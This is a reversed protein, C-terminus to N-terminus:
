ILDHVGVCFATIATFITVMRGQQFSQRAQENAIEGHKLSEKAQNNAIQRQALSLTMEVNSKIRDASEIMDDIDSMVHSEWRRNDVSSGNKLKKWVRMQHKGIARLMQLEDRINRIKASLRAPAKTGMEKGEPGDKGTPQKAEMLECFDEFLKADKRAIKNISDSFIQHISHDTEYVTSKPPRDYADVCYAFVAKAMELPSRVRRARKEIHEIADTLFPDEAQDIPHTTATILWKHGIVWVWLQNVRVLTWDSREAVSEPHISKTVVQHENRQPRDEHLPAQQQTLRSSGDFFEDLTASGHIVNGEYCKLLGYYADYAGQLDVENQDRGNNEEEQKCAKEQEKQSQKGKCDDNGTHYQGRQQRSLALYPMYIAQLFRDSSYADKTQPLPETTCLPKMIRSESTADPIQSWSSEFFANVREVNNSRSDNVCSPEEILIRKLLDNMWTINTAPLHVWTFLDDGLREVKPATTLVPGTGYIVDQVSRFETLLTSEDDQVRCETVAAKPGWHKLFEEQEAGATPIEPKEEGSTITPTSNRLLALVEPLELYTAWQIASWRSTDTPPMKDRLHKREEFLSELYHHNEENQAAWLLAEVEDGSDFMSASESDMMLGLIDAPHSKLALGLATNEWENRLRNEGEKMVELIGKYASWNGTKAALHLATDAGENQIAPDAGHALLKAVIRSQSKKRDDPSEDEKESPEFAYHLATNDGGDRGAQINCDAGAECLTNVCEVHGQESAACLPTKGNDDTVDIAAHEELLVAVVREHGKRSAAHLPTEGQNDTRDTKAQEKLLLRASREWGNRCASHLPTERDNDPKDIDAGRELLLNMIDVFGKGSAVHLPTEGHKDGESIKAPNENLLIEVIDLHQYGVATRIPSWLNKDLVQTNAGRSLLLEVVDKHGKFCADDLPTARANGRADIDAGRQLLLDAIDTHGRLCAFHLPQRGDEDTESLLSTDDPTYDLLQRVAWLMGRDVAMHMANKNGDHHSRQRIQDKELGDLVAKLRDANGEDNKIIQLFKHLETKEDSAASPSSSSSSSSCSPPDPDPGPSPGSSPKETRPTPPVPNM